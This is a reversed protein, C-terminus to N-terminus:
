YCQASTIGTDNLTSTTPPPPTPTVCQGNTLVQPPTCTLPPPPPTLTTACSEATYSSYGGANFARVRYCYQMDAALGADQYSASSGTGASSVPQAIMTYIGGLGLKREIQFGSEDNANDQWAFVISNQSLATAIPVSPTVVGSAIVSTGANVAPESAPMVGGCASLFISALFLSSQIIKSKRACM